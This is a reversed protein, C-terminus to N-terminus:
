QNVEIEICTKAPKQAYFIASTKFNPELTNARVPTLVTTGMCHVKCYVNPGVHVNIPSFDFHVHLYVTM